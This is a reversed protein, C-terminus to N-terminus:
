TISVDRKARKENFYAEFEDKDSEDESAYISLEDDDDSINISYNDQL